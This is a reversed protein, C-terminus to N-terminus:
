ENDLFVEHITKTKRFPLLGRSFSCFPFFSFFPFIAKNIAKNIRQRPPPRSANKASVHCAGLILPRRHHIM